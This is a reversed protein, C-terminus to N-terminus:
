QEAVKTATVVLRNKSTWLPTCTYLTLREDTTSEEIQTQTPPVVEQKTVRYGYAKGKWYVTIPDGVALKDLHYFTKNGTSYMFRHGTIVTNSGLDPTSTKPRHWLGNNLTQASKGELIQTDVGIKPIVINNTKPKPGKAFIFTGMTASGSASPSGIINSQDDSRHQIQYITYGFEAYFPSLMIYTALCLLIVFLFQNLRGFYHDSVSESLEFHTAHAYPDRLPM